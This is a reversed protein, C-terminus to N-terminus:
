AMRTAELIEEAFEAQEPTLHAEFRIGTLPTM